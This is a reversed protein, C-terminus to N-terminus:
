GGVVGSQLIAAAAQYPDLERAAARDLVADFAARGRIDDLLARQV